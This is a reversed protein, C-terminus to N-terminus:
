LFNRSFFFSILELFNSLFKFFFSVLQDANRNSQVLAEWRELNEKSKEYGITRQIREAEPRELPKELTKTNKQTLKIQKGVDGHKSTKNLVKVLDNITVGGRRSQESMSTKVLNFESTKLVPENRTPKKIHQTKNIKGLAELMKSHVNVDVEDDEDSSYKETLTESMKITM